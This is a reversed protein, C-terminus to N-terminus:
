LIKFSTLLFAGSRGLKTAAQHFTGANYDCGRCFFKGRVEMVKWGYGGRRGVGAACVLAPSFKHGSLRLYIRIASIRLIGGPRFGRFTFVLGAAVSKLVAEGGFGAHEFVFIGFSQDIEKILDAFFEVRLVGVFIEEDLAHGFRTEFIVADHRELRGDVIQAQGDVPCGLLDGLGEAHVALTGPGVHAVGVAAVGEAFQGAVLGAQQAFVVAGALLEFFELFDAGGSGGWGGIRAFQSTFGIRGYGWDWWCCGFWRLRLHTRRFGAGPVRCRGRCWVRTRNLGRRWYGRSPRQFGHEDTNM